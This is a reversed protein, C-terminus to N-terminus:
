SPLAERHAPHCLLRHGHLSRFLSRRWYDMKKIPGHHEGNADINQHPQMPFFGPVAPAPYLRAAFDIECLCGYKAITLLRCGVALLWQRRPSFRCPHFLAIRVFRLPIVFDAFQGPISTHPLIASVRNASGHAPRPFFRYRLDQLASFAQFVSFIRISSYYEQSFFVVLLFVVLL